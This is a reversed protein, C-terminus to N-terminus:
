VAHKEMMWAVARELKNEQTDHKITNISGQFRIRGDLLFVLYDSLEELESMIHSTLIFTKGKRKEELIKDKLRSSAVPDLGATPEDLILVDPKFMFAIVASVKQRTGGSLTKLKKNKERELHFQDYLELDYDTNGERLSKIMQLIEKVTLNEPFRALQPMYGIREKYMWDGKIQQSDISIIGKNPWVLGLICKILTTKGSGNPGVVATVSGPRFEYSIDNVVSLKGFSKDLGDIRIM